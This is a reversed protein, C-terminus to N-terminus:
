WIKLVEIEMENTLGDNDNDVFWDQAAGVSADEDDCDQSVPVGDGDADDRVSTTPSPDQPEASDKDGSCAMLALVLLGLPSM